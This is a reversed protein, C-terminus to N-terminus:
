IQEPDPISDSRALRPVQLAMSQKPNLFNNVSNKM